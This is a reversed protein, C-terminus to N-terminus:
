QFNYFNLFIMIGGKRKKLLSGHYVFLQLNVESAKTFAKLAATYSGRKYYAEALCEWVHRGFLVFLWCLFFMDVNM